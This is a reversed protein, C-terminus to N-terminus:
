ELRRLEGTNGDLRLKDGTRFRTTAGPLNVIAPLGSERAVVAGHSITGGIESALGAARLFYPAWGIDTSPVVLIEDPKILEAEAITRAIRAPGEVVGRSVPTGHMADTAGETEAQLQIPMPKGLSSRAFELAMMQPHLRRRRLARQVLNSDRTDVLQGLEEHTFFFVLDNDPLVKADVLLDALALYAPRFARMARIAHSKSRERMVVAERTMDVIREAIWRKAFSLSPLALDAQRQRVPLGAASITLIGQISRILPHPDEGWDAERLEGERACRHGHDRLLSEFAQKTTADSGNRLWALAEDASLTAFQEADAPRAAIAATVRDIARSLGLSSQEVDPHTPEVHALLRSITAQHEATTPRGGTLLMFLMGNLATSLASTQCHVTAAEYMLPLAHHINQYATKADHSQLIEYSLGRAVFEELTRHVQLLSRFYRVTNLVRRPLPVFPGVDVDELDKGAISHDVSQKGAGLMHRSLLYLAKMNMFMHGSFQAVVPEGDLQAEPVGYRIMMDRMAVNTSDIIFRYSLPTVAGPLVESVNYTTFLRGELQPFHTDFEDFHPGNTTTIPRAQLWFLVGDHDVAWEMDLTHGFHTEALLAEHVLQAALIPEIVPASAQPDHTLMEGERSLVMRHGAVRGSLLADGLGTTAEIVLRDDGGVPDQTFLVGSTRANVMRQVIVSMATDSSANVTNRYADARASHASLLCHHIAERVASIGEVNLLTDYQGAFSAGEGDEDQASSRVAVAGGINAYANDVDDPLAGPSAGVVVFGDPM